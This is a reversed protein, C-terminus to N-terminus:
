GIVHDCIVLFENVTDARSAASIRVAQPVAVMAVVDAGTEDGSGLAVGAGASVGM